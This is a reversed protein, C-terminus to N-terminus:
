NFFEYVSAPKVAESEVKPYHGADTFHSIFRHTWVDYLGAEKRTERVQDIVRFTYWAVEPPILLLYQAPYEPM